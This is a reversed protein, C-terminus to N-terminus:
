PHSTWANQWTTISHLYTLQLPLSLNPFNSILAQAGIIVAQLEITPTLAAAQEIRPTFNWWIDSFRTQPWYYFSNTM